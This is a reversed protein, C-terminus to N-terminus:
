RFNLLLEHPEYIKLGTAPQLAELLMVRALQSVALPRAAAPLLKAVPRLLSLAMSEMFRKNTRQADLLGPRFISVREPGVKVVTSEAEAKVRSYFFPSSASTGAASIMSFHEVGTEKAMIAADVVMDYDVARFAARSGAQKLTTGLCCFLVSAGVLAHAYDVAHELPATIAEVKPHEYRPLRRGICRVSAIYQSQILELLLAEGTAGTAGLLAVSLYPKPHVDMDMMMM